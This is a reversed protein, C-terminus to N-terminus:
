GMASFSAYSNNLQDRAFSRALAANRIRLHLLVNAVRQAAALFLKQFGSIERRHAVFGFHRIIERAL